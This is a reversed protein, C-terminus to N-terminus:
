HFWKLGNDFDNHQRQKRVASWKDSAKWLRFQSFISNLIFSFCTMAFIWNEKQPM